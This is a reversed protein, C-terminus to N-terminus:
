SASRYQNLTNFKLSNNVIQNVPPVESKIFVFQYTFNNDDTFNFTFLVMGEKVMRKILKWDKDNPVNSIFVSGGINNIRGLEQSLNNLDFSQIYDITTDYNLNFINEQTSHIEDKGTSVKSHKKVLEDSVMPLKVVKGMKEIEQTVEVIEDPRYNELYGNITKTVHVSLPNLEDIKTKKDKMEDDLDTRGGRPIKYKEKLIFYIMLKESMTKERYIDTHLMTIIDSEDVKVYNVPVLDMNLELSISLRMNGSIVINSDNVLLPTIIGENKISEYLEEYNKCKGLISFKEDNLILKKPDILQTNNFTLLSNKM